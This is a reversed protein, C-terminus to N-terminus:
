VSCPLCVTDIELLSYQVLKLGKQRWNDRQCLFMPFYSRLQLSRFNDKLYGVASTQFSPTEHYCKDGSILHKPRTLSEAYFFM